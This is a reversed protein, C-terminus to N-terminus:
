AGGGPVGQYEVAGDKPQPREEQVGVLLKFSIGRHVSRGQYVGTADVPIIYKGDAGVLLDAPVSFTGGESLTFTWSRSRTGDTFSVGAPLNMKLTVETLGVTSGAETSITAVGGSASKQLNVLRVNLALPPVPETTAVSVSPAGARAREASTCALAPIALGAALFLVATLIKKLDKRM